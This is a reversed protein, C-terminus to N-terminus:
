REKQSKPIVTFKGTIMNVLMYDGERINEFDSTRGHTELVTFDLNERVMNGHHGYLGEFPSNSWDFYFRHKMGVSDKTFICVSEDRKWITINHLEPANGITPRIHEVFGVDGEIIPKDLSFVSKTNNDITREFFKPLCYPRQQVLNIKNNKSVAFEMDVPYGLDQELQSCLASILFHNRYTERDKATPSQPSVCTSKPYFLTKYGPNDITSLNFRFMDDNKDFVSKSTAFRCTTRFNKDSLLKDAFDNKVYNMVIYPAGFFTESYVVGAMQPEPVMAQLVIGMETHPVKAASAYVKNLADAMQDRTQVNLVSEYEGSHTKGSQDEDKASSRVAFAVDGGLKGKVHMAEDILADSVYGQKKYDAFKSVPIVFTDPVVFNTNYQVNYIPILTNLVSLGAFKGGGVAAIQPAVDNLSIITNYAM